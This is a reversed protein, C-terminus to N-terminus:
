AAHATCCAYLLVFCHADCSAIGLICYCCVVQGPTFVPWCACLLMHCWLPVAFSYVCYPVLFSLIRLLINCQSGIILLEVGYMPWGSIPMTGGAGWSPVTGITVSGLGGGSMWAVAVCTGGVCTGGILVSCIVVGSGGVLMGVPKNMPSAINGIGSLRILLIWRSSNTSM